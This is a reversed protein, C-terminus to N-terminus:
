REPVQQGTTSHGSRRQRCPRCESEVRLATDGCRCLRHKGCVFPADHGPSHKETESAGMVCMHSIASPRTPLKKIASVPGTASLRSWRRTSNGVRQGQTPTSIGTMSAVSTHLVSVGVVDGMKRCFHARIHACMHVISVRMVWAQACKHVIVQVVSQASIHVFM